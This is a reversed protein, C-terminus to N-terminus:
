GNGLTSFMLGARVLTKFHGLLAATHVGLSITPPCQTAFRAAHSDILMGLVRGRPLVSLLRSPCSITPNYTSGNHDMKSIVGGTVIMHGHRHHTM